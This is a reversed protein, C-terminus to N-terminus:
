LLRQWRSCGHAGLLACGCQVDSLPPPCSLSCPSLLALWLSEGLGRAVWWRLERVAALPQPQPMGVVWVPTSADITGRAM